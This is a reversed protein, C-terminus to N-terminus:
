SWFVLKWGSKFPHNRVDIKERVFPQGDQLWEPVPSGEEDLLSPPVEAVWNEYGGNSLLTIKEVGIGLPADHISWVIIPNINM